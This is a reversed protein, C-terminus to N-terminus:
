AGMWKAEATSHTEPQENGDGKRWLSTMWFIDKLILKKSLLESYPVRFYHTKIYVYFEPPDIRM